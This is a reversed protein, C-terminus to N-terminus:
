ASRRPCERTSPMPLWSRGAWGIAMDVLVIEVNGLSSLGQAKAASRVLARVPVGRASLLRVLESGVLGAAGTVPIM